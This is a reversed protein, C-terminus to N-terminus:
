NDSWRTPPLVEYEFRVRGERLAKYFDKRTIYFDGNELAVPQAYYDKWGIWGSPTYFGWRQTVSTMFALTLCGGPAVEVIKHRDTRSGRMWQWWRRRVFCRFWMGDGILTDRDEVYWGKLILSFFSVPHDHLYPEADPKHIWHLCIAFWPTMIIHLRTLYGSDTESWRWFAWKSGSKYKRV